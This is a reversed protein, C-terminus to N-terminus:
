GDFGPLAGPGSQAGHRDASLILIDLIEWIDIEGLTM